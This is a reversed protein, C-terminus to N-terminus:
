RKLERKADGRGFRELDFSLRLGGFFMTGNRRFCGKLGSTLPGPVDDRVRLSLTEHAKEALIDLGLWNIAHGCAGSTSITM